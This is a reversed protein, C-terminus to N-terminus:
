RRTRRRAKFEANQQDWAKLLLLGAVVISVVGVLLEVATTMM